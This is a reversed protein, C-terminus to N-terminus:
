IPNVWAQHEAAWMRLEGTRIAQFLDDAQKDLLVYSTGGTNETHSPVKIGTLDDPGVRRLALVLDSLPVGGTDVTLAGGVQRIVQDLKIPNTAVGTSSAQRFLAKLLQQQHRQRDYDGGPLDYRQRSYDLADAGNMRTCGVPFLKQTHISRIEEDVCMDVGGVLDIVKRFGAFKVIAAGDFKVGILGYLAKSLLAVGDAGGGGYSFAANIKDQGGNFGTKEFAPLEVLLDRPISVLYARDLERDVQVIIITDSRQGAEPSDWRADSGILLYNLPGALSAARLRTYADPIYEGHRADPDLLVQRGVSEDYRDVLARVTAYGGALMLLVALCAAVLIQAWTHHAPFRSRASRKTEPAGPWGLGAAAREPTTGGPWGTGTVM